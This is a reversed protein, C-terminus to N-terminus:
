LTKMESHESIADCERNLERIQELHRTTHHIMFNLWDSITMEGFYPHKYVRNDIVIKGSLLGDKLESLQRVFVSEFEAINSFAGLPTLSEPAALKYARGQAVNQRLTTEGILESKESISITPRSILKIMIADSLCIHEFIQLVSWKGEPKFALQADTCNKALALAEYTNADLDILYAAVEM